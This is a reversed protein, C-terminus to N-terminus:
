SRPDTAKALERPEGPRKRVVLYGGGTDVIDEVAPDEHGSVVLFLAADARVREYRGITTELRELCDIRDCECVLSVLEAEDVTFRRQLAEISENVERFVAENAAKRRQPQDM